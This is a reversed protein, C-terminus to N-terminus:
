KGGKKVVTYSYERTGFPLKLPVMTGLENM